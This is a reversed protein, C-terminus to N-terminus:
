SASSPPSSGRRTTASATAARAARRRAAAAARRADHAAAQEVTAADFAPPKDGAVPTSRRGVAEGGRRAGADGRGAQSAGQDGSQAQHDPRPRPPVPVRGAAGDRDAAGDVTGHVTGAMRIQVQRNEEGTVVSRVECVAVHDMGLCRASRGRRRPGLRRGRAADQRAAPSRAGAHQRGVDILDFEDRTLPADLGRLAFGTTRCSRSSWDRRDAPLEREVGTEDTKITAEAGRTVGCRARRRGGPRGVVRRTARRLRAQGVVSLPLKTEARGDDAPVLLDGGVELTTTVEAADGPKLRATLDYTPPEAADAALAVGRHIVHRCRGSAASLVRRLMLKRSAHPPTAFPQLRRGSPRM